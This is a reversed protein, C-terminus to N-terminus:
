VNVFSATGRRNPELAVRLLGKFPGGPRDEGNREVNRILVEVSRILWHAKEGAGVRRVHDIQKVVFIKNKAIRKLKAIAKTRIALKEVLVFFQRDARPFTIQHRIHISEREVVIRHLALAHLDHAESEGARGITTVHLFKGGSAATGKVAVAGARDNTHSLAFSKGHDPAFALFPRAELDFGARDIGGAIQHVVAMEIGAM